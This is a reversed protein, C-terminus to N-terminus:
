TTTDVDPVAALAAPSVIKGQILAQVAQADQYARQRLLAQSPVQEIVRGTYADLSRYVVAETQPDIIVVRSAGPASKEPKRADNRPAPINAASNVAQSTPLDTQVAPTTTGSAPQVHHDVVGTVPNLAVATIV